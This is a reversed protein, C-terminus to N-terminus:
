ARGSKVYEKFAKHIAPTVKKNCPGYCQALRPNERVEQIDGMAIPKGDVQLVVLTEFGNQLLEGHYGKACNHMKGAAECLEDYNTIPKFQGVATEVPKYTTKYPKTRDIKVSASRGLENMQENETHWTRIRHFIQAPPVNMLDPQPLQRPWIQRNYTRFWRALEDIEEVYNVLLGGNNWWGITYPLVAPDLLRRMAEAVNIADVADFAPDSFNFAKRAYGIARFDMVSILPGIGARTQHIDFSGLGKIFLDSGRKIKLWDNCLMTTSRGNASKALLTVITGGPKCRFLYHMRSAFRRYRRYTTPPTVLKTLATRNLAAYEGLSTTGTPDLLLRKITRHALHM